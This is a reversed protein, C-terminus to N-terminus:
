HVCSLERCSIRLSVKFLMESVRMELLMRQSVQQSSNLGIEVETQTFFYRALHRLLVVLLLLFFFLRHTSIMKFKRLISGKVAGIASM